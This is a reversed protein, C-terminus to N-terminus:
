RVSLRLGAPAPAFDLAASPAADLSEPDDSEEELEGLPSPAPDALLDMSVAPLVVDAPLEDLVEAAQTTRDNENVGRPPALAQQAAKPDM